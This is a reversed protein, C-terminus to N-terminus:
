VRSNTSSGGGSRAAERGKKDRKVRETNTAVEKKHKEMRAADESKDKKGKKPLIQRKTGGFAGVLLLSNRSCTEAGLVIQWPLSDGEVVHFENEFVKYFGSGEWQLIITGTSRLPYGNLCMGIVENYQQVHDTYGLAAVVDSTILDGAHCGADLV